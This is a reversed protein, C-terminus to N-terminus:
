DDHGADDDDEHGSEDHSDGHDSDDDHGVDSDEKSDSGEPEETASGDGEAETNDPKNLMPGGVGGPASSVGGTLVNLADTSDNPPTNPVAGTAATSDGHSSSSSGDASEENCGAFVLGLCLLCALSARAVFNAFM